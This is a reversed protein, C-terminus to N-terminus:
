AGGEATPTLDAAVVVLCAESWELGPLHEALWAAADAHGGAVANDFAAPDGAATSLLGHLHSRVTGGGPLPVAPLAPLTAGFRVLSQLRRVRSATLDPALAATLARDALAHAGAMDLIWAARRLRVRAGAVDVDARRASARGGGDSVASVARPYPPELLEAEQVVDGQLVLRLVLGPPFSPFFPGITFSLQDLALGDRIDDATMAMPRGYPKGGMMGEGGQGHDGLGRWPNPPRDPLWAPESARDGRLVASHLGRLAPLPDDDGPVVQGSAVSAGGGHLDPQPADDGWYLTARPHPIQDHVRALAAGFRSPVWGAVMLITAHRPSRVLRLDRRLSLAEVRDGAGEGIAPFIPVPAAAAM